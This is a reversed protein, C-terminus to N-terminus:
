LVNMIFVLILVGNHQIIHNIRTYSDLHEPSQDVFTLSFSTFLQLAGGEQFLRELYGGLWNQHQKPLLVCQFRHTKNKGCIFFKM